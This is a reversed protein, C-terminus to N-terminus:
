HHRAPPQPDFEEGQLFRDIREQEERDVQSVPNYREMEALEEPTVSPLHRIFHVLKWSDLDREPPDKGWAPMGTFRIGNHIIYFLEGDSFSQTEIKTLDPTRPHFNQGMLTSGSGDNGHCNACHDAFHIRAEALVEASAPVPNKMQKQAEPMALDRLQRAFIVEIEMPEEKASFGSQLVHWLLAVNGAVILMAMALVVRVGKTM